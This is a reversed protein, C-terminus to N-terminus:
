GGMRVVTSIKGEPNISTWVDRAGPPLLNFLSEDLALNRAGADIHAKPKDGLWDVFGKAFVDAEGSRGRLEQVDLRDQTVHIQGTLNTAAFERGIAWASAEHLHLNLDYTLLDKLSPATSPSARNTASLGSVRGDLDIKGTLGVKHIWDRQDPPLAALLNDDIPINTAKVSMDPIVKVPGDENESSWSVRGNVAFSTDGHAMQTDIVDVYGERIKLTGGLGRLPYPFPALRGTADKFKVDTNVVPKTGIGIAMVVDCVFSGHFHPFDTYPAAFPSVVMTSAAPSTADLAIVGSNQDKEKFMGIAERVGQPFADFLAPEAAIENSEARIECGITKDFPGIWGNVGVLAHENPGGIPGHGQIHQIDVRDYTGDPSRGLLIKGHAARVPYPFYHCTFAGDIVNVEATVGPRGGREKRDLDLWVTCIGSPKVIDYIQRADDPM